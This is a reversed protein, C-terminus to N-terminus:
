AFNGYDGFKILILIGFDRLKTLEFIGFDGLKLIVYTKHLISDLKRQKKRKEGEMSM